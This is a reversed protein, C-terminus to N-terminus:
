DRILARRPRGGLHHLLAPLRPAPELHPGHVRGVRRHVGRRGARPTLLFLPTDDGLAQRLRRLTDADLNRRALFGQAAWGLTVAPLSVIQAAM